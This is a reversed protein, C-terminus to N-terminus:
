RFFLQIAVEFSDEDIDIEVRGGYRGAIERLIAIGHGHGAESKSTRLTVGTPAANRCVVTLGVATAAMRLYIWKESDNNIRGCAEVANDLLNMVLSALDSDNVPLRVPINEFEQEAYIGLREARGIQTSLLADLLLHGTYTAPVITGGGLLKDVYATLKSSESGSAYHRIVTLHNHTEHLIRQTRTVYEQQLFAHENRAALQYDMLKKHELLVASERYVRVTDSWLIGAIIFIMVGGALETPWGLLIPDYLSFLRDFILATAFVCAGALLAKSHPRMKWVAWGSSALLFVGVLWKYSDLLNGWTHYIGARDAPFHPQLMLSLCILMGLGCITYHLRKPLACLKGQIWAAAIFIGYYGLACVRMWGGRLGFEHLVAGSISLSFCLCLIFLATYPRSFRAGAGVLLCLLGVFLAVSIAGAHIILRATLLEGVAQPSGFAPPHIMGSYLGREDSVAVVIEIIDRAWFTIMRRQPQPPPSDGMGVSQVLEGNVWLRWSSFIEPLELAYQIYEDNGTVVTMRYTGAGHRPANPDGLEFGGFRGIFLYADPIFGGDAIEQPTLLSDRYLEWGDVLYLLPHAAFRQADLLTVGMMAPHRPYTFKNDYRWGLYFVAFAALIVVALLFPYRIDNARQRFHDM